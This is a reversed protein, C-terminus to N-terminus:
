LVINIPENPELEQDGSLDEVRIEEGDVEVVEFGDQDYKILPEEYDYFNCTWPLYDYVMDGEDLASLEYIPLIPKYYRWFCDFIDDPDNIWGFFGIICENVHLEFRFILDFVDMYAGVSHCYNEMNDLSWLAQYDLPSAKFAEMDVFVWLQMFYLKFALWGHAAVEGYVAPNLM